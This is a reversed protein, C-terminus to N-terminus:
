QHSHDLLLDVLLNIYGTITPSNVALGSALRSANLLTGQCHVLMTSLCELTKAPIRPGFQPM